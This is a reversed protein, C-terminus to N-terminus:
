IENSGAIRFKEPLLAGVKESSLRKPHTSTLLSTLTTM